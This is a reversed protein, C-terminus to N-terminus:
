LRRAAARDEVARERADVCEQLLQMSDHERFADCSERFQRGGCARVCACVRARADTSAIPKSPKQAAADANRIGTPALLSPPLSPTHSPSPSPSLSSPSPSLSSPSPPPPPPPSPSPSPPIFLSPPLSPRPLLLLLSPSLRTPEHSSFSLPHGISLHSFTGMPSTMCRPWGPRHPRQARFDPGKERTGYPLRRTAYGLYSKSARTPSCARGEPHVNGKHPLM